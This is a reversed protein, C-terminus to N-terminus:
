VESLMIYGPVSLLCIVLQDISPQCEDWEVIGDQSVVKRMAAPLPTRTRINQSSWILTISVTRPLDMWVFPVHHKFVATANGLNDTGWANFVNSVSDLTCAGGM